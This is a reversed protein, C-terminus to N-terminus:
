GGPGSVTLTLSHSLMRKSDDKTCIAGDDCDTTEPLTITFDGNGEPKVTITWTQNSGQVKRKANDIKGGNVNLAHNILNVYSLRVNESFSLEFTFTVGSGGHNTPVNSFTSTFPTPTAAVTDTPESTLTEQRDRHDPFPVRANNSAGDDEDSRSCTAGTADPIGAGAARDHPICRRTFAAHRLADTHAFEPIRTTPTEGM